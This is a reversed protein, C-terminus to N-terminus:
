AFFVIELLRRMEAKEEEATKKNYADRWRPNESLL